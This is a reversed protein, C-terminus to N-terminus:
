LLISELGRKDLNNVLKVIIDGHCSQSKKCYCGLTKGKLEQLDKLLYQGDGNLLWDKHKEISEKRTTTKYKALSKEKCSFPNGYKSPRGIYVDYTEDKICVRKCNNM